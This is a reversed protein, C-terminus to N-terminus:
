IVRWVKYLLPRELEKELKNVYELITESWLGDKRQPTSVQKAILFTDLINPLNGKEKIEKDGDKDELNSVM